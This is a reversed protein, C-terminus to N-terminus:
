RESEPHLVSRVSNLWLTAFSGTLTSDFQIGTGKEAQNVVEGTLPAPLARTTVSVRTGVPCNLVPLLLAGGSSINVIECAQSRGDFTADVATYVSYRRFRRRNAFRSRRWLRVLPAWLGRPEPAVSATEQPTEM